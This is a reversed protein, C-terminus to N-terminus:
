YAQEDSNPRAGPRVVTGGTSGDLVQRDGLPAALTIDVSKMLAIDICARDKSRPPETRTLTVTVTEETEEVVPQEVEGYCEPVGITYNLALRREDYKFYSEVPVAFPSRVTPAPKIPEQNGPPSGPVGTGPSGPQASSGGGAAPSGDGGSSGPGAVWWVGAVLVLVALASVLPVVLRRM